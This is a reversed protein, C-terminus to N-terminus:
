NNNWPELWNCYFAGFCCFSCSLSPMIIIIIIIIVRQSKVNASFSSLPWSLRACLILTLVSTGWFLFFLQLRHLWDPSHFPLFGRLFFNISSLFKSGPTSPAVVTIMVTTIFSIVFQHTHSWILHSHYTKTILLSAFNRIAVGSTPHQTVSLATTSREEIPNFLYLM